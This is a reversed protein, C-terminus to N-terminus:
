LNIGLTDYNKKPKVKHSGNLMVISVKKNLNKCLDKDGIDYKNSFEQYKLVKNESLHNIAEENFHEDINSYYKDIIDNILEDKDAYEFGDPTKILIENRNKNKLIINHNEPHSTNYHVLNILRPISEYPTKCLETLISKTIYEINEQGLVNINVNNNLTNTTTNNSNNNSNSNTIQPKLKLETIEDKLKDLEIKLASIEDNKNSSSHHKRNHYLLGSASKYSLNCISCTNKPTECQITHKITPSVELTINEENVYDKDLDSIFINYEDIIIEKNCKRKRNLHTKLNTLKEAV